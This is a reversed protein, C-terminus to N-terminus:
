KKLLWIFNISHKFNCYELNKAIYQRPWNCYLYESTCNNDCISYNEYLSYDPEPKHICFINNFSNNEDIYKYLRNM